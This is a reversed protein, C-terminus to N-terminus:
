PTRRQPTWTIVPGPCRDGGLVRCTSCYSCPRVVYAGIWADPQLGDRSVETLVALRSAKNDPFDHRGISVEEPTVFSRPVVLFAARRAVQKAERITGVFQSRSGEGPDNWTVEYARM